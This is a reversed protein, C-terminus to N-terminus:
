ALRAADVQHDVLRRLYQFLHLCIGRQFVTIDDHGPRGGPDPGDVSAVIDGTADVADGFDFDGDNLHALVMERHLVRFDSVQNPIKTNQLLQNQLLGATQRRNEQTKSESKRDDTIGQFGLNNPPNPHSRFLLLLRPMVIEEAGTEILDDVHLM